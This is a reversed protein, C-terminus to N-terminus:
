TQGSQQPAGQPKFVWHFGVSNYMHNNHSQFLSDHGLASGCNINAHLAHIMAHAM